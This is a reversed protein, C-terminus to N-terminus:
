KRTEAAAFAVVLDAQHTLTVVVESLELADAITRAGRHLTVVPRGWPDGLVEIDRWHIGQGFGRGLVKCTAEKACFRGALREVRREPCLGVTQALEGETFLLSCYRARRAIPTFRHIALLDVGTRV